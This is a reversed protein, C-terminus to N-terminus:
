MELMKIHQKIEALFLSKDTAYQQQLCKDKSADDAKSDDSMGKMFDTVSATSGKNAATAKAGEAAISKSATSTVDTGVKAAAAAIAKNDKGKAKPDDLNKMLPAVMATVIKNILGDLLHTLQQNIFNTMLIWIADFILAALAALAGGIFPISGILTVMGAEAVGKIGNLAGWVVAMAQNFHNNISPQFIGILKQTVYYTKVSPDKISDLGKEQAKAQINSMAAGIGSQCAMTSQVKTLPGMVKDSLMSMVIPIMFAQTRADRIKKKYLDFASKSDDLKDHAAQKKKDVAEMATVMDAKQTKAAADMAIKRDAVCKEADKNSSFLNMIKTGIGCSYKDNIAKEQTTAASNVAKVQADKFTNTVKNDASFADQAAKWKKEEAPLGKEMDAKIQVAHNKQCEIAANIDLSFAAADKVDDKKMPAGPPHGEDCSAPADMHIQVALPFQEQLLNVSEEKSEVLNGQSDTITFLDTSAEMPLVRRQREWRLRTHLPVLEHDEQSFIVTRAGGQLLSTGKVVTKAFGLLAFASNTKTEASVCNPPTGGYDCGNKRDIRGKLNNGQVADLTAFANELTHYM